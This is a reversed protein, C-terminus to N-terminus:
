KDALLKARDIANFNARYWLLLKEVNQSLPAFPLKGLEGRLRSNDGSYEPAMGPQQIVLDVDQAAYRKIDEALSKLEVTEDSTVNYSKHTAANELFHELVRVLDDVYVYDFRRNQKITIPLRYLSKCIANSIFRISYDEYRGFVGFLRLEVINRCADLLEAIVYKSFGHADVPVHETYAGEQARVIDYRMDYIAGSSLYIMKGFLGSNRSLNLFMRINRAALDPVQPANRHGPTTACHIVADVRHTELYRAVAECDMLDLEQRRPALMEHRHRLHELVNRGIFGSQGTLLIVM